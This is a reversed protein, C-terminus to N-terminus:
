EYRLSDVPDAGAARAAQMSVTLLAILIAAFTAGAFLGIHLSARYSFQNLWRRMLFYAAPWAILNAVVVWKLFDKSLMFVIRPASAGLVKRIGIEKTKREATYASLGFLGLCAIIVAIVTFVEIMRSFRRDERYASDFVDDFFRYEFPYVPSFRTMLGEIAALTKPIAEPKIRISLYSKGLVHPDPKMMLYLPEIRDHLSLFHFDKVVGVIKGTIFERSGTFDWHDFARGVPSEWGLVDVASQNLLYAGDRDTPYDPSFPRGEVIDIGYLGMFDEDIFAFNMMQHFDDPMSPWHIRLSYDMQNPLNSSYAVREIRDYRTLETKLTEIREALSGDRITLVVIQERRYGMDTSEIYRLQNRIVLVSIILAASISFQAVVLINRLSSGRLHNRVRSTLARAPKFSSLIFAPYSGSLLGVLFVLGITATLFKWELMLRLTLDRDMFSSFYPLILAAIMVALVAAGVTILFSETFFQAYLQKRLAGVVKRIGVERSRQTARATTLNMFNICSILLVLFAISGSIVLTRVHSNPRIEFNRHSHLHIRSVPQLAYRLQRRAKQEENEYYYRDPLENFKAELASIDTGPKLLLYGYCMGNWSNTDSGYLNERLRFPVIFDITFHSNAPIDRFVGTVTLNHEGDIEIKQGVPDTNGFHKSAASESCVVSYRDELVQTREGKVLPITFIDFLSPEAFYFHDVLFRDPGVAMPVENRYLFRVASQIEPFDEAAHYVVGRHTQAWEFSNMYLRTHDESIVRYIRNHHVHHRDFSLEYQIYMLILLSCALGVALGFINIASIMSKKQISRLTMKLYNALMTLRWHIMNMLKPPFARFFQNWYWMGATWRGTNERLDFYTEDLDGVTTYDGRDPFLIGFLRRAVKPPGSKANPDSRRTSAM